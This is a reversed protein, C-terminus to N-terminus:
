DMIMKLKIRKKIMYSVNLIIKKNAIFSYLLVTTINLINLITKNYYYLVLCYIFIIIYSYLYKGDWKITIYKKLDFYRYVAIILYSIVTSISAAYLGIIKIFLLNIIINFIAGMISTIAVQKTMKLAIYFGSYLGIVINFLTSLLLIPIYYYAEGYQKDILINFVFPMFAIVVICLCSFLRFTTNITESFYKDRDKSGINLSVSESWSMSFINFISIIISSFKNSTAYIGNAAVGLFFTIITRDSVNVIWWSISNPVLPVSYRLFSKIMEIDRVKFSIYKYLGLKFFLFLTTLFNSIIMSILMGKAGSNMIVIFLINFIITTVGCLFSALSYIINYGLGRCFNMFLNSYICIVINLLILNSYKIYILNLILVYIGIFILLLYITCYLINSIILKKKEDDNRADVLYRFAAMELQVTIVPILLMIYTTILDVTGYDETTLYSTYLPLLIFSIFQTSIKGLFIIATNKVLEKSKNM